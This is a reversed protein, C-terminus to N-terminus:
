LYGFADPCPGRTAIGNAGTVMPCTGNDYLTQFISSAVPITAFSTGVVTILGTGIYYNRWIRIRSMQIMSLIGSAILSASVMYTQYDPTLALQSAFIIPPTILGAIMALSHQFGVTLMVLLPLDDDKGYFPSPRRGKGLNGWPLQPLCLWAYDFDGLWGDRTTLKHKIRHQLSSKPLVMPSAASPQENIYPIDMTPQLDPHPSRAKGKSM